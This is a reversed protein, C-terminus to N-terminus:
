HQLILRDEGGKRGHLRNEKEISRTPVWFLSTSVTTEMIFFLAFGWSTTTPMPPPPVMSKRFGTPM